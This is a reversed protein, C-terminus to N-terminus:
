QFHVDAASRVTDNEEKYGEVQIDAKSGAQEVVALEIGIASIGSRVRKNDDAAKMEMKKKEWAADRETEAMAQKEANEAARQVALFVPIKKRTADVDGETERLFQALIKVSIRSCEDHKKRLFEALRTSWGDERDGLLREYQKEMQRAAVARKKERERTGRRETRREVWAALRWGLMHWSVKLAPCVVLLVFMLVGPLWWGWGFYPAVFAMPVMWGFLTLVWACCWLLFSGDEDYDWTLCRLRWTGSEDEDKDRGMHLVKAVCRTLIGWWGVAAIGHISWAMAYRGRESLTISELMIPLLICLPLVTGACFAVHLLSWFTPSPVTSM